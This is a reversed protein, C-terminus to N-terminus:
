KAPSNLDFAGQGAQQIFIETDADARDKATEMIRRLTPLFAELQDKPGCATLFILDHNSNEDAWAVVKALVVAATGDLGAIRMIAANDEGSGLSTPQGPTAGIIPVNCGALMADIIPDPQKGQLMAGLVEAAKRNATSMAFALKSQDVPKFVLVKASDAKTITYDNPYVFAIRKDRLVQRLSGSSAAKARLFELPRKGGAKPDSLTLTDGNVNVIFPDGKGEQGRSTLNGALSGDPQRTATLPIVQSGVAITGVYRDGEARLTLVLAEEVEKGTFTGSFPDSFLDTNAPTVPITPKTPTSASAARTLIIATGDASIKLTDGDLLAIFTDSDEEASQGELGKSTLVGTFATSKDDGIKVTGKYRDTDGDRLVVLEVREGELTGTFTGVYNPALDATTSLAAITAAPSALPATPAAVAALGILTFTTLM